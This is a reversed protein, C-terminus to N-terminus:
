KMRGMYTGGGSLSQEGYVTQLVRDRFLFQYAKFGTYGGFSNKANVSADLRYGYEVRGGYIIAHRIWGKYVKGWQYQASMPDKLQRSLWREADRQAEEDSIPLGYDAAALEEATPPGSACGLSVFAFGVALVIRPIAKGM